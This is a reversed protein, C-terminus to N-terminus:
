AGKSYGYISVSGTMSGSAIYITIGDYSAAVGHRTCVSNQMLGNADSGSSRSLITTPTSLYPSHIEADVAYTFSDTAASTLYGAAAVDNRSNVITGNQTLFLERPYADTNDVGSARYNFHLNAGGATVLDGIRLAYNTYDSSFASNISVSSVASFTTTNIHILGAAPIDATTALTGAVAPLTLVGDPAVAPAALETYGSTSGYLRVNGM